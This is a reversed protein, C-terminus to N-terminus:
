GGPTAGPSAISHQGAAASRKSSYQWLLSILMSLTILGLTTTYVSSPDGEYLLGALPPAVILVSAGITETIGYALGMRAPPALERTQAVALSRVVRYGGLLFYGLFYAPLGAGQWLALGFGAICVQGILFGMRANLSGLLLNLMVVGLSGVSGLQGIQELSLGRENRLFNQSLPQPLYTSFVVVFVVGLYALYRWDLPLRHDAEHATPRNTPQSRILLIILV